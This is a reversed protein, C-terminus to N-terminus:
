WVSLMPWWESSPREHEEPYTIYIVVDSRCSESIRLSKARVISV